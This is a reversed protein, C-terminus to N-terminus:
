SSTTQYAAYFASLPTATTEVSLNEYSGLYSLLPCDLRQALLPSPSAFAPHSSAEPQGLPVYHLDVSRIHQLYAVCALTDYVQAFPFLGKCLDMLMMGPHSCIYKVVVSCISQFVAHNMEGGDISTWVHPITGASTTWERLHGSTVLRMEMIDPAYSYYASSENTSANFTAKMQWPVWYLANNDLLIGLVAQLTDIPTDSGVDRLQYSALGQSGAQEVRQFVLSAVRCGDVITQLAELSQIDDITLPTQRVQTHVPWFHEREEPSLGVSEIDSLFTSPVHLDKPVLAMSDDDKPIDYSVKTSYARDGQIVPPLKYESQASVQGVAQAEFVLALSGFSLSETVSLQQENRLIELAGLNEAMLTEPWTSTAILLARNTLIYMSAVTTLEKRKSKFSIVEDIILSVFANSIAKGYKAAVKATQESIMEPSTHELYQQWIAHLVAARTVHLMGVSMGGVFQNARAPTQTDKSSYFRSGNFAFVDHKSLVEELNNPLEVVDTVTAQLIGEHFANLLHKMNTRLDDADWSLKSKNRQFLARIIEVANAFDAKRKSLVMLRRSIEEVSLHAHFISNFAKAFPEWHLATDLDRAVVHALRIALDEEETWRRRRNRTVHKRRKELPRRMLQSYGVPQPPYRMDRGHERWIARAMDAPINYKSAIVNFNPKERLQRSQVVERLVGEMIEEPISSADATKVAVSNVEEEPVFDEDEYENYEQIKPRKALNDLFDRRAFNPLQKNRIGIDVAVRPKWALTFEENQVVKLLNGIVKPKTYETLELMPYWTRRSYAALASPLGAVHMSAQDPTDRCVLCLQKWFADAEAFNRLPMRVPATNVLRTDEFTASPLLTVINRRSTDDDDRALEVVGVAVLDQLIEVLRNVSTLARIGLLIPKVDSPLDAINPNDGRELLAELFRSRREKKMGNFGIVAIALRLPMQLLAQVINIERLGLRNEAMSLKHPPLPQHKACYDEYEDTTTIALEPEALACLFLHTLRARQMRASSLYGYRRNASLRPAGRDFFRSETPQALQSATTHLSFSLADPQQNAASTPPPPCSLFQPIKIVGPLDELDHEVHQVETAGFMSRVADPTYLPQRGSGPGQQSPAVSESSYTVPQSSEAQQETPAEETTKSRSTRYKSYDRVVQGKSNTERKRHIQLSPIEEVVTKTSRFLADKVFERCATEVHEDTATPMVILSMTQSQGNPFTIKRDTIQFGLEAGLTDILRLQVKKDMKVIHIDKTEALELEHLRQALPAGMVVAKEDMLLKHLLRQRREKQNTLFGPNLTRMQQRNISKEANVYYSPLPRDALGPKAIFRTTSSWPPDESAVVADLKLLTKLLLEARTRNDTLNLHYAIDILLVGETGAEKFARYVHWMETRNAVLTGSPLKADVLRFCRTRQNQVMGSFEELLKERRLVAVLQIFRTTSFKKKLEFEVDARACVYDEQNRMYALIDEMKLAPKIHSVDFLEPYDHLSTIAFGEVTELNADGLFRKSRRGAVQVTDFRTIWRRQELATAVGRLHFRDKDIFGEFLTRASVGRTVTLSVRQLFALTIDALPEESGPQRSGLLAAM